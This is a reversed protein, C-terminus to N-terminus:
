AGEPEAPSEDASAPLVWGRRLSWQTAEGVRLTPPGVRRIRISGHTTGITYDTHPGEFTLHEVIGPRDGDLTAWEPRVVLVAPGPPCSSGGEIRSVSGALEVDIMGGGSGVLSCSLVSAPGALGATWVDVPERYIREPSAIQVIRGSRLVAVRDAVALAEAADHTTYLAAAGSRRRQEVLEQQLGTRLGVDLHATPEHFLYLVPDTALARALGVRQQQGGSLQDPLREALDSIGVLRLLREAEPRAESRSLGRRVMPYAITDIANLHPWLAYNQFVMGVARSEAPTSIGPGAVVTGEIAIEGGDLDLLGAIAYLLTTKGSGSPGLLAVTESGAMDLDLGDLVPTSGYRVTVSRCHLISPATM